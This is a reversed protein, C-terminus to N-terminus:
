QICEKSADAFFEKGMLTAQTSASIYEPNRISKYFGTVM